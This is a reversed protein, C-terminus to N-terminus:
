RRPPTEDGLMGEPQASLPLTTIVTSSSSSCATAPPTAGPNTPITPSRSPTTTSAAAPSAPGSVTNRMADIVFAKVLTAASCSM